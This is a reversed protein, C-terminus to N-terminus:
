WRRKPRRWRRKRLEKREEERESRIKTILEILSLKKPKARVPEKRQQMLLSLRDKENSSFWRSSCSTIEVTQIGRFRQLLDSIMRRYYLLNGKERPTLWRDRTLDQWKDIHIRLCQLNHRSKMWHLVGLWMEEQSQEFPGRRAEENHSFGSGLALGLSRIRSFNKLGIHQIWWRCIDAKRFTFHNESYFIKSCTTNFYKNVQLLSLNVNEFSVVGIDTEGDVYGASWPGDALMGCRYYPHYEGRVLVQDFIMRQIDKDLDVFRAPQTEISARDTVPQTPRRKASLPQDAEDSKPTTSTGLSPTIDSETQRHAAGQVSPFLTPLGILEPSTSSEIRISPKGPPPAAKPNQPFFLDNDTSTRSPIEMDEPVSCLSSIMTLSSSQSFLPSPTSSPSATSSSM